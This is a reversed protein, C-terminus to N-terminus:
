ILFLECRSPRTMWLQWLHLHQCFILSQLLEIVKTLIVRFWWWVTWLPAIAKMGWSMTPHGSSMANAVHVFIVVACCATYVAARIVSAPHSNNLTEVDYESVWCRISSPVLKCLCYRSCAPFLPITVTTSDDDVGDHQSTGATWTMMELMGIELGRRLHGRIVIRSDDDGDQWQLGTTIRAVCKMTMMTTKMATGAEHEQRWKDDDDKQM